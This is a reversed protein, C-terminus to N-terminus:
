QKNLRELNLKSAWVFILAGQRCKTHVVLRFKRLYFLRSSDLRFDCTHELEKCVLKIPFVPTFPPSIAAFKFMKLFNNFIFCKIQILSKKRLLENSSIYYRILFCFTQRHPCKFM